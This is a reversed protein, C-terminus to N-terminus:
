YTELIELREKESITKKTELSIADWGGNINATVAKGKLGKLGAFHPTDLIGLRIAKELILPSTLPERENKSLNKIAEILFLAEKVLHKKRTNIVEDKTLDFDGKISLNLVGKGIECSEIVIKPTVLKYGESFGVIHLIHPKLMMSYVTSASLHGKAKFPDSPLSAIGARVERLVRFSSDELTKVLELKALMKALDMHPSTSPPNNFMMQLIFTKVGLIKANYASIYAMAVALSDHADRLSWQHSENVEVPVGKEAYFKIAQQKEEIAEAIDKKSRGDLTSYWCLPVAGWAINITDILMEAWRILDNTGSYCRLLPYNGCRTAEYIRKLDEKKRLPVGGAGDQSRNMLEPTFFFEQANQDPGLSLVDLCMSKAIKKAGKITSELNPEGYHHRIIPFPSCNEIREILTQSFKKTIKERYKGKIVSKIEEITENGNFVKDFLNSKLALQAVPPTGGFFLKISSPIEKKKIEIEKLIPLFDEPTLRFSIACIKPHIEKIKDFLHNISVAPGLNITYFGEEECLRLFHSLGAIHVCQGVAAGLIIKTM